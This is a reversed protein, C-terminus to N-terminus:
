ALKDGFLFEIARDLRISPPVAAVGGGAALDLRPPRFRPFHVLEMSAGVSTGDLLSRPDQPLDGPFVAAETKGDFLKRDLREGPLPVGVICPLREGSLV